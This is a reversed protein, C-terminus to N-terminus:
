ITVRHVTVDANLLKRWGRRATAMRPSGFSISEISLPNMGLKTIMLYHTLVGIGSGRSHHVLKHMATPHEEKIDNYYPKLKEAFQEAMDYFNNHFSRYEELPLFDMNGAWERLKDSGNFCTVIENKDEEIFVCCHDGTSPIEFLMSYDEKKATSVTYNWYHLLETNTKRM